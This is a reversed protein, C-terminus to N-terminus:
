ALRGPKTRDAPERLSCRVSLVPLVCSTRTLSYLCKLRERKPASPASHKDQKATHESTARLNGLQMLLALAHM